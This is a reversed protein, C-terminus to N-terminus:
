PAFVKVEVNPLLAKIRAQTEPPYGKDHRTFTVSKLFSFTQLQQLRADPLDLGNFALEKLQTVQALLTLDSDTLLNGEIQLRRLTSISKLNAIAETAPSNVGYELAVYELPVHKMDKFLAATAKKCSIEIGKLKSLKSLHEASADTLSQSHWLKIFELNPFRDCVYGMGEDDLNNSHLNLSTLRTWGAFKALAHGPIPFGIFAFRELNKLGALRELGAETAKFGVLELATLGPITTLHQLQALSDDGLRGHGEISLSKLNTLTLLPPLWSDEIKTAVITVYELAPIHGLHEIFAADYPDEDLKRYVHAKGGLISTNVLTLTDFLAIEGGAAAKLSEPTANIKTFAGPSSAIARIVAEVHPHQEAAALIAAANDALAQKLAADTTAAIVADLDARSTIQPLDAACATVTTLACVLAALLAVIPKM